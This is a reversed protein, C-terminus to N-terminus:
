FYFNKSFSSLGQCILTNISHIFSSNSWWQTLYDQNRLYTRHLFLKWYNPTKDLTLLRFKFQLVVCETYSLSEELKRRAGPTQEQRGPGLPGDGIRRTLLEQPHPRPLEKRSDGRWDPEMKCSACLDLFFFGAPKCFGIVGLM